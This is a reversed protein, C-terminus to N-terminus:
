GASSFFILLVFIINVAYVSFRLVHTAILAFFLLGKNPTTARQLLIRVEWWMLRMSLIMQGKGCARKARARVGCM